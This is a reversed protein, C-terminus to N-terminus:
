VVYKRSEFLLERDLTREKDRNKKEYDKRGRGVGVEVKIRGRTVYLSLPLLTLKGQKLKSDLKTIEERKVLLKRSRKSDYNTETSFKYKPIDTNVLYLENNIVKVYSDGLNARGSKVSKVEQGTLIIGAEFKELIEYNFSAKKNIIKM